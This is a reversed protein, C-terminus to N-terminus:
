FYKLFLIKGQWVIIRLLQRKTASIQFFREVSISVVYILQLLSILIEVYSSLFKHSLQDSRKSPKRLHAPEFGAVNINKYTKKM